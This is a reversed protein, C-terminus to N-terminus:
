LRLPRKVEFIAYPIDSSGDGIAYVGFKILNLSCSPAEYIGTQSDFQGAEIYAHGRGESLIINGSSASGIKLFGLSLSHSYDSDVQRYISITPPASYREGIRYSYYSKIYEESLDSSQYGKDSIAKVKFTVTTNRSNVSFSNNTIVNIRDVINTNIFPETAINTANLEGYTKYAVYYDANESACVYKNYDSFDVTPVALKKNLNRMCAKMQEITCPNPVGDSIARMTNALSTLTEGKILYDAM